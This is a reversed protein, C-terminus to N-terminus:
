EAEPAVHANDVPPPAIPTPAPSNHEHHLAMWLKHFVAILRKPATHSGFDQLVAKIEKEAESLASDVSM